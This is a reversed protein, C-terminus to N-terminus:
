PISVGLFVKLMLNDLVRFPHSNGLSLIDVNQVNVSNDIRITEKNDPYDAIDYTGLEFLGVANFGKYSTFIRFKSM